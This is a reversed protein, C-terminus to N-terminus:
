TNVVNTLHTEYTESLHLIVDPRKFKVDAFGIRSM